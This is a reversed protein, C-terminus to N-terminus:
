PALGSVGVQPQSFSARERKEQALSLFYNLLRLWPPATHHLFHHGLQHRKYEAVNIADAENCTAEYACGPHGHRDHGRGVQQVIGVVVVLLLLLVVALLECCLTPETHELPRPGVAAGPVLPGTSTCGLSAM